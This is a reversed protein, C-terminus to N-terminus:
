NTKHAQPAIAPNIKNYLAAYFVLFINTTSLCGAKAACGKQRKSRSRTTIRKTWNGRADIEPYEFTEESFIVDKKKDADYTLLGTEKGRADIIYLQRSNLDGDAAYSLKERGSDSYQYVYKLWLEGSSQPL